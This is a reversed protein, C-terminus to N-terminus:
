HFAKKRKSSETSKCKLGNERGSEGAPKKKTELMM